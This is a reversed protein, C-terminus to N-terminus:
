GFLGAVGKFLRPIVSPGLIRHRSVVQLVAALAVVVVFLSRVIPFSFSRLVPGSGVYSLAAAALLAAVALAYGAAPSGFGLTRSVVDVGFRAVAAGGLLAALLLSVVIRLPVRAGEGAQSVGVLAAAVVLLDISPALLSAVPSSPSFGPLNVLLDFLLLGAALGPVSQAAQM